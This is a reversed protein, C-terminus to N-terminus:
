FLAIDDAPAPVRARARLAVRLAGVLYLSGAIWLDNDSEALAADLAEHPEAVARAAVGQEVLLRAVAEAALARPSPVTTAWVREAGRAVEGLWAEARKDALVGLVMDFPRRGLQLHSALARGGDANHAGDFVVRRHAPGPLAVAELRGPWACRAFGAEVAVRGLRGWGHRRLVESARAALLANDRQHAGALRLTPRAVVAGAGDVIAFRQGLEGVEVADISWESATGDIRAGQEAASAEVARRAEDPLAGWLAPRGRRFVGAKERAIETLTEGLYEQHDLGISTVVSLLPETVNTADLRGGLGVEHIALDAGAEAFVLFAAGTLAEFHTPAHALPSARAADVVRELAAALTRDDVARGGVRVRERASELHPSTYLGVRHGAAHAAAAILASTSGKGNTGAVLVSPVRLHPDGLGRLLARFAALDFRIGGAELPALLRQSLPASGGPAIV